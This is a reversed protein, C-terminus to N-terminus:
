FAKDTKGRNMFSKVRHISKRWSKPQGRIAQVEARTVSKLDEESSSSDIIRVPAKLKSLLAVHESFVPHRIIDELRLEFGDKQLIAFVQALGIVDGGLEFFSDEPSLPLPRGKWKPLIQQWAHTIVDSLQLIEHDTLRESPAVLSTSSAFGIEDATQQSMRSRPSPSPLAMDPEASIATAMTCLSDLLRTAFASTIGGDRVFSLNIEVNNDKQPVSVINIDAMEGPAGVASVHYDVDGFRYSESAELNQHQIISSFTTCDPWDTCRKIIERFGLMEHPMNAVQQGQIDHLLDLATWGLQLKTRVPVINLCPGVVHALGPVVANRGSVIHGFTVDSTATTQTLVLAWAAKLITAPTISKASLSHLNITKKFTTSETMFMDFNPRDRSVISTMSSGKLLNRWHDHTDGSPDEMASSVYNSFDTGSVLPQGNYAAQLSELIIPLSVGDYQAHSLRLVISHQSSYKKQVVMVKLYSEGLRLTSSRDEERWSRVYEDVDQATEVVSFDPELKRLVVQLLQDQHAIFVTRLIPYEQIVQFICRKLRGLDLKGRGEFSFYNLMWRSELMSGSIALAQYDTVPLVDVIGGRFVHLQSCIHEQLFAEINSNKLLSFPEYAVEDLPDFILEQKAEEGNGNEGAQPVETSMSRRIVALMDNFAPYLFVDAVTLNIGNELASGVMKMAVLSDGGLEFFSGESGIENKPIDLAESWLTLLKKDMEEASLAKGQKRSLAVNEDSDQDTAARDRISKSNDVENAKPSILNMSSGNQIRNTDSAVLTGNKFLEGIVQQVTESVLQKFMDRHVCESVLQKVMDPYVQQTVLQQAIGHNVDFTAPEPASAEPSAGKQLAKNAKDLEMISQKPETITNTLVRSLKDMVEEAQQPSLHDNWYRLVAGEDHRTTRINLTVGYESPDHARLPIFDLSCEAAEGEAGTNQISVATNFMNGTYEMDHQMQALSCHQYPLSQHYDDQTTQFMEELSSTATFKIRSVLMNIYAGIADQISSVPADRGSTLYGFCIDDTRVYDRLVLAWAVLMVNSLTVKLTKCLSQLEDFRDFKLSVSGLTKEAPPKDVLAPFYCPQVGKLYTRWFRVDASPPQGKIYAIYDSYLPGRGEPLKDEYALGLDRMLIFASEGDIVCHNIEIKLFVKGNPTLCVTLQHPLPPKNKLNTERLSVADMRDLVESEECEIFIAGSNAQKVVIQNFADGQYVSDIFITRLAAHRDVVKQWTSVLKQANVQGEGFRTPKVEVETHCLYRSPDVFQALLLGEQMPSCPYVNEVKDHHALGYKPFIERTLKELKDYGIPMTPYDSLTPQSPLEVLRTVAEAFTRQCESFWRQIANQHKVCRNYNVTFQIQKTAVYASVEFLAFRPANDNMDAVMRFSEDDTDFDIKQLLSDDRQASQMRGLYNFTMEMPMHDKFRKRGDLTLFRHAFYARGNEPVKRRVDKMRKVTDLIDNRDKDVAVHFPAMATFWGVTRSIDISSDWPERGHGENFITPAERDNFVRNFSHVLVALFLDVMDTKFPKHCEDLALQSIDEPIMFSEHDVDSYKNPKGALGWYDLNAPSIDYPLVKRSNGSANREQANDAQMSAWHQFPLPKDGMLAGTDLLEEFDQMINNWSVIDVVLHHAVLFVVSEQGNIRFFDAAFLPGNQVDLCSQSDSVMPNIDRLKEVEYVKYRYSSTVDGTIRQKWVGSADKTFRARLMSHQGVIAKVANEIDESPIDRSLRVLYSQNFRDGLKPQKVSQFYLQQIPSLEFVTDLKEEQGGMDAQQLTHLDANQELENISQSRIIEHLSLSIKEKRAHAMVQMATISDGGLNLFSQEFSIEEVPINLVRSYIDRMIRKFATSPETTDEPEEIREQDRIQTHTEEDLKTIWDAVRERDPGGSATLPLAQVVVWKNPMFSQSLQASLETQVESLQARMAERSGGSVLQLPKVSLAADEQATGKLSLVAVLNERFQGVLPQLVISDHVHSHMNLLREIATLELRQGNLKVQNEKKGRLELVGRSDYNALYGTKLMRRSSKGEEFAATWTPNEIYTTQADQLVTMYTKELNAGELVLEGVAGLPALRDHDLPDVIWAMGMGLNQLEGSAATEKFNSIIKASIGSLQNTRNFARLAESDQMSFMQLESLKKDKNNSADNLQNLVMDFQSLLRQVEYASITHEDHHVVIEVKRNAFKCELILPYTFFNMGAGEDLPTWLEDESSNEEAPQIVLLNQFNCAAATDSNLRKIHQLGAHQHPITDATMHQVAQLYQMVTLTHDVQIRTPVTTLTPGIIDTVGPVSIDRGALTQGFVVDESGTYAGLLAAWAARIITPMTIESGIITRSINADYTLSPTTRTQQSEAVPAQPFHLPSSGALKSKWFTDSTQPKNQLLYKIFRAYPVKPIKAVGQRYNSKFRELVMPMSWGDYLAHHIGWVFYRENSNTSQVITYRTLSSGNHEPLIMMEKNLESLNEAAHWTIPQERLVVQLFASSKMHVIRTRLIDIDDVTKQWAAKFRDLDVEAGLQFANRAAYSGPQKISLTILGEQLSSCPYADQIVAKEVECAGALEDRTESLGEDTTILSFPASEKPGDGEFITCAGAMDSLKPKEFIALVTLTIQEAYAANILRMAAISDGGLKFFNDDLGFSSSPANLVNEWLKALKKEMATVPARKKVFGALKYPLIEERPLKEVVHRLRPRDIKGSSTWPMKTLPIFITPVMYAPLAKTLASELEKCRAQMQDSMPLLLEDIPSAIQPETEAKGEPISLFVCLAKTGNRGPPVVLEVASQIEESLNTRVHHEIEGLEIRQGNFKVQTDKRSIYSLTGDSNYRVLDGTRYMREKRHDLDGFTKNKRWSPDTVFAEATKQENKLYGRAVHRGEVLLEGVGGVPTLRNCNRPDVVWNRGGVAGGITSTDGNVEVGNEDIKTSTAAIVSTESPGYANIIAAKGRWRAIHGASMAEGGTVLVKLSPVSDPDLIKAVSPTLLTWNVDMRQIAGPIDSMREQENPVCVCGGAILTSLIEMISADFTYNAFQFVRSDSRMFMARAHETASTCFQAHEIITGKPLGTTGSTFIIYAADEPSPEQLSLSRPSDTCQSISTKDVVFTKKAAESLKAQYQSSCLVLKAEVNQIIHKWRSVPHTPDLPVFAGGAKMIALMAVIPWLSKEFCIPVYTGRLVGLTVLRTALRTALRDLQKYTLNGDWAFIAHKSIQQIRSQEEIAKHVCKEVTEPLKENWESVQKRSKESFHDLEGIPLSLKPSEMISNLVHEYTSAMHSAQTESLIDSWYNLHVEVGSEFAEINITISYESPDHADLVNFSLADTSVMNSSSRKQYTFATNFLSVGSLRLEHQVDALSSHQHAMSQVVDTQIQELADGLQVNELLNIRCVLINIFAGVADQIGSVPADRGSVLYGFCIENSNTYCRLILAWVFQLVTPVTLGHKACFTPLQSARSLPLVLTNLTRTEKTSNGLNPFYCPEIDALYSKWYDMDAQQSGSQIHSIYQSFLPGKLNLAPQGTYAQALDRLLIPMSSGDSIAHSIDLMCFVRNSSTKAITFFHPPKSNNFDIPPRAELKQVIEADDCEELRDVRATWKKVVAQDMLGQQSVNNIFITRLSAHRQVVAQWAEELRGTEIRQEKRTPRVEIISRYNYTAPNKLQSFLIGQQMASCPYADELEEFSSLGMQPLKQALNTLGDYALPLLPFDDLTPEMKSQVLQEVIRELTKQYEAVWQEIQQQRKMNKNYSFTVKLSGQNVAASTEILAFRPVEKGIDSMMNVSQGSLSELPQLLAEKRELQQLQGLYNFSIEMPWHGHFKQRGDESLFRHAFYERGKDPERRRTDKIWRLISITDFHEASISPLYIPTITTFWGVTRSLDIQSDWPERGHGENFIAPLRPRDSFVGHFSQLMATLCIDVIDTRLAENCAGLLLSTTKVNLEFGTDVSEGHTNSINTMGWYDLAPAPMDVGTLLRSTQKSRTHELQLRCWAQFTLSNQATLKNTLLLDELDQLIIRWSVVDVVLHHTVISLIYSGNGDSKFMDVAFVPGTQVNLSMQSEEVITAIQADNDHIHFRYSGAVDQTIKQKWEGLDTKFFRARLMSHSNAISEIARVIDQSQKHRTLRLLVSQNFHNPENSMCEFYLQQIPSLEFLVDIDEGAEIQKKPLTVRSALDAISKSQIIDQVTVGLNEARCQAMVQMATISDGGLHLFSAHPGIQETPLNLVYSFINQLQKEVGTAQWAKDEQEIEIDCIQHHTAENMTEVFKTVQRRDLKGSPLLPIEQVFIWKTPVMYAPLHSGLRERISPLHQRAEDKHVLSLESLSSKLTALTQLSTVATLQKACPGETPMVIVGHKVSPDTALHYEAEGLELRQGRVKVQTDKRGLYIMTGDASYRVLDGTKYFRRGATQGNQEWDRTWLPSQVFADATKREEKLYGEALIPGEVLLEGPSGIPALRDSNLRDVIWCRGGVAWGINAPNTELSMHPNVAAIIATESPGYANLLKVHQAWTSIHTQSMAEGGLVLTKLKPVLSPSINQVFSPTLLAWNVDFKNMISTINNLRDEEHPVCVCGGFILTTLIEMISADFTYSAFQLVRSTDQMGMASGHAIAGTCFAGHSVITGKPKGTTGSTFIVYAQSDSACTPLTTNNISLRSLTERDITLASPAIQEALSRYRSSCLVLKAETDQIIGCLRPLPHSPDLPVFAGGAKLVALMAVITWASKEFCLPVFVNPGVGKEHLYHALRTAQNNLALYTFDADWSSVAPTAKPLSSVQQEIRLHVCENLRQLPARNWRTIMQRDENSIMGVTGVKDENSATSNLKVLVHEFCHLLKQLRWMPLINQDYHAEIDVASDNITFSLTLPYTFFNNGVTGSNQPNWFNEDCDQGGHNIAILNQFGCGIETDLSLKKIRQLGAQQYPLVEGSKRQVDTLYDQISLNRNVELRRPITALTPGIMDVLGPVPADRGTVTEGFVVDDSGSYAAVVLAWAARIKSSMIIDTRTGSPIRAPYKLTTTGSVQYAPYPLQPFQHSSSNALNSRWFEDCEDLDLNTLYSIFRSYPSALAADRLQGSEYLKQVRDHILPMSWGDYLAHHLTWVFHRDNSNAGVIAYNSLSGGNYLPVQRNLESLEEGDNIEQWTIPERVVVQLFGLAKTYVIRTRLVSEEGVIAEWSEKFRNMDIDSSLRYVSQAVYAGPEKNSLAILGQQISTCPYIDEICDKEIRCQSALDAILDGISDVGKILAFPRIAPQVLDPKLGNSTTLVHAAMDVLKPRQFISAVSLLIGERRSATVLRMASVSDGGLRFFDDDVGIADTQINLVSAYLKQLLLEVETAPARGTKKGALRYAAIKEEPLAEAATRLTRRDLKGSSTMPMQAVPIYVSPIMYSQLAEVLASELARATTSLSETMPLIFDASGASPVSGDSQLGFFTALAKTSRGNATSTMLEVASQAEPPLNAKVHHEIEGVEIRQGNLKVQTDKRGLYIVSGDSNYRVLDGTKYMRRITKQTGMERAVWSPNEIFAASTKAHDNFYGRALIPGEILLEGACGIPMLQNHDSPNVVWSVSGIAYGINTADASTAIDGNWMCNISCETPGYVGGLTVKGAWTERVKENVAEGGFALIKVTPVESPHLFNAVTPTIDMLNVEFRNIVDALNNLRDHDSPVCVCGGFMLTTFIEELCNDFTYAAFQLVRSSECFGMVSGHARVSSVLAGHEIVVGKPNGTSGSTYIVYCSSNSSVKLHTNKTAEPLNEVFSRDVPVVHPVLDQFMEARTPAVLVHRAQCDRVRREIASRPHTADLPVFAGGAKLIAVMTVITWASKDFCIPVLSEPGVGLTALFSALREALRDLDAFTFEADWGHVAPANPQSVALRELVGHICEDIRKEYRNYTINHLAQLFTDAVNAAQGDSLCDTWHDLTLFAAEEDVEVNISVNYETPDYIPACERFSIASHTGHDAPPLRRYSLATNFLASSALESRLAHQVEALPTGRHPLSNVYDTQVQDVVDGVRVDSSIDVSCALMNIFPGVAEEAMDVPADRISTLYGFCVKDSGTYCRLALAWATHIANSLTVNHEDCVEQLRRLEEFTMHISHLEKEKVIGENLVPFLCPEANKLYSRWFELSTDLPQSRLYAIYDGYLPKPGSLLGEYARGLDQFIISMSAGDMITHSIELKCFVRGSSTECITFRHPPRRGDNNSAAQLESLYKVAEEGSERTTRIVDPDIRKLVIQDYMANDQSFSEVFITRLAAHRNVVQEWAEVLRESNVPASGKTKVEQVVHVGYYASDKTLSLLLGQQMQSCPYVDEVADIGPVGIQILKQTMMQFRDYTLALQPFDSLTREPKMESLENALLGLTEESRQIWSRIEQQRSMHRNFTFSFRLRDQVVVASIEFLGFRPTKHGVDAIGGAGRAEGAMKEAPVLLGGERELQQYLGLYNFTIELPWHSSFRDRGASTLLRSAFYPRGNGLIQRRLDKVRRTTEVLDGAAVSSVWVPYMVTFWGVTKSLDIESDWVERGHGENYIPPALRDTFTQTFSHILASLLLDVTETGLAEHSKSTLKSTTAADVEFGETLVDGYVNPQHEMGWYAGDGAPVDHSPLVQDVQFSTCHEAQLQCWTQFPLPPDAISSRQPNTLLEEMDELIIRWSVLDIVLHHGVMFVLQDGGSMNFLDVAFVPGHVPDLSAQTRAIESTVQDKRDYYHENLRYSTAVDTTIRQQWVGNNSNKSFRARLMSHCGIISEVAKRLDQQTVHRTIRLFFSQNFHDQGQNQLEFFMKQIPSLDFTQEVAEIRQSPAQVERASLALHSISKSRIVDQVTLRIGKKQCQRMVQMASISDGGFSLFPRDLSIYETPLDLVHGWVSQIIEETKSKDKKSSEEPRTIGTALHYAEAGINEVWKAIRKRDLKGSSLFPISEVLLIISPVMYHPLNRSLSQRLQVVYSDAIEKEQGEVLQLLRREKTSESLLSPILSAVAVVRKSCFGSKPFLVVGHQIDKEVNLHHEIEGLEVRQGHVKVQTDKRGVFNFTGDSCNQRVLDGTKYMRRSLGSTGTLMIWAPDNIFSDSTKKEDNLYGEALTPGEILLEGTCGVPVLRNHDDQDAVWCRTGVARGINTPGSKHTVPFNVLSCVACESPGYGNVLKIKSWTTIQDSSMAEGALVLTKLSPVTSPELYGIFSPTLVAWNVHMAAITEAVSNLRAEESPICVCGGVILTTLIEVLSADFTHAAFQLVRCESNILMAPGHAKASSCYAAHSVVTGKPEGTTGSTFILYARDRSTARSIQANTVASLREMLNADVPVINEAVGALAEAHKVSCLLTQAGVKRALSELRNKPHAPDFPVFAAGAKLVALMAVVNWKSKDFCLPIFTNASAGMDLLYQALRSAYTSLEVYTLSGDWACVAEANPRCTVQNQIVEHICKLEEEPGHQNWRCVVQRNLESFYDLNAIRTESNLLIASLVVDFTSAVNAAQDVSMESSWWMLKINVSAESARIYLCLDGGSSTGAERLLSQCDQQDGPNSSKEEFVITTNFPRRKPLSQLGRRRERSHKLRQIEQSYSKKAMDVSESLRNAHEFVMKLTRITLLDNGVEELLEGNAAEGPVERYGFCVEDLGTYCRLLLGWATRLTSQLEDEGAKVLSHLRTPQELNVDVSAEKRDGTGNGYQPFHCPPIEELHLEENSSSITSQTLKGDM